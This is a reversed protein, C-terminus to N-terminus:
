RNLYSSLSDIARENEQETGVSVRIWDKMGYPALPRVIVGEKQMWEFADVGDGVRATVFNASSEIYEIGLSQLQKELKSRERYNAKRCDEIWQGDELSALAAAQAVANVNFPERVRNLLAVLEPDGFGYGIRLGALGFIKSFTRTCFVRKGQAILPRLDPPDDLYESYAGDFVLLVSDPLSEALEIIERNANASGSPNDPSALFVVKTRDSVADLMGRLDHRYEKTPVEVVKGGFLLTVLKYVIFSGQGIVVEDGQEIFAHGILELIENSGNGVILQDAQLGLWQALANVLEYCGGDPYLHVEELASKGAALGKPSPGLPNENSALKIISRSDLGLERAVYEIPKGPQYVPQLLLEPKVLKSYVSM